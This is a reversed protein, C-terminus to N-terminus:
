GTGMLYRKEQDPTLKALAAELEEGSLKDLYAFEDKGTDHDAAAPVDGLTQTQEAQEKKKANAKRRAESLEDKGQAEKYGTIAKAEKMAQDLLERNGLHDFDADNLKANAQKVFTNYLAKDKLAEQNDTNFAQVDKQWQQEAAKAADEQAKQEMEARVKSSLDLERIQDKVQDRQELFDEFAIEGEDFKNQIDKLQNTLEERKEANPDETTQEQGQTDGQDTTSQEQSTQDDQPQTQATEDTEGTQDSTDDQAAREDVSVEGEAESGSEEGGETGSEEEEAAAAASEEAASHDESTETESSASEGTDIGSEEADDDQLAQREEKSMGELEEDSFKEAM